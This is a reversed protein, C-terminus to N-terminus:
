WWDCGEQEEGRLQRGWAQSGLDSVLGSGVLEQCSKFGWLFM